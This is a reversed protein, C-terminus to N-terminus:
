KRSFQANDKHIKTASQDVLAL